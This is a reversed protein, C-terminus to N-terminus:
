VQKPDPYRFSDNLGRKRPKPAAGRGAWFNKYAAELDVLAQQSGPLKGFDLGPEVTLMEPTRAVEGHAAAARWDLDHALVDFVL